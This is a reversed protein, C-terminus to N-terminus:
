RERIIDLKKVLSTNIDVNLSKALLLTTLIVDAFELDLDEQTFNKRSKYM